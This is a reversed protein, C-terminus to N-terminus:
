ETVEYESSRFANIAESVSRYLVHKAPLENSFLQILLYMLLHKQQEM